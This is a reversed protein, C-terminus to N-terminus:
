QNEIKTFDLESGLVSHPILYVILLIISAILPFLYNDKNKRLRIIAVLWALFAILTKNDTLDHGFPWGTWWAGFAYFQIVPGLIMGGIILSVFTIISLKYTNNGKFIAEFGTRMSIWMAAFMFIIHPILFYDPVKGKFRIIVPDKTLQYSQGDKDHLYIMYMVKGAPPQEPISGLLFDAKRKLDKSQWEDYSKYRRLEIKGTISEDKVQIKILEEGSGDHSRPLSYQITENGITIKGNIPYTPGTMRQYVALSGMIMLSVVWLLINKWLPM